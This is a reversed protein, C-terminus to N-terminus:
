IGVLVWGTTNDAQYADEDWKWIQTTNPISIPAEWDNDSNLTHSPFPQPSLFIDKELDYIFGVGAYQKRFNNNYSTQVWKVGNESLPVVTEFHQAATLSQDGGNADVDVNDGVLVRLVKNENNIEAFHAM